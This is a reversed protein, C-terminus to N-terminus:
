SVVYNILVPGSTPEAFQMYFAVSGSATTARQGIVSLMSEHNEDADSHAGLSFMAVMSSSVGPISVSQEIETSMAPVTLVASGKIPTYTPGPSGGSGANRVRSILAAVQSM